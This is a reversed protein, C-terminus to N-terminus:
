ASYPQVKSAEEQEELDQRTSVLMTQTTERTFGYLAEQYRRTTHVKGFCTCGNPTAGSGRAIGQRFFKFADESSIHGVAGSGVIQSSLTSQLIKYIDELTFGLQQTSTHKTKWGQIRAGSCLRLSPSSALSIYSYLGHTCRRPM